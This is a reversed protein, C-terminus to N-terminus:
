LEKKLDDIMRRVRSVNANYLFRDSESITKSKLTERRKKLRVVEQELDELKEATSKQPAAPLPEVSLLDKEIKSLQEVEGSM